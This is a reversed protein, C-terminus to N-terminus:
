TLKLDPATQMRNINRQCHGLRSHALPLPRAPNLVTGSDKIREILGLNDSALTCGYLQPKECYQEALQILFRLMSLFSYGEARFSSPDAGYVPGACRVIRQGNSRCLMLEFASCKFKVSGDSVGLFTEETLYRVIKDSSHRLVIM